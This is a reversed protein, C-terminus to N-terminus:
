DIKEELWYNDKYKKAKTIKLIEMKDKKEINYLNILEQMEIDDPLRNEFFDFLNKDKYEINKLDFNGIGYCGAKIAEKLDYINIKFTYIENEYKLIGLNFVKNEKSKWFLELKM